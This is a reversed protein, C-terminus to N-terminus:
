NDDHVYFLYLEPGYYHHCALYDSSHYASSWKFNANPMGIVFSNMEELYREYINETSKDDTDNLSYYIIQNTLEGNDDIYSDNLMLFEYTKSNDYRTYTIGWLYTYYANFTTDLCKYLVINYTYYSRDDNFYNEDESFDMYNGTEYLKDLNDNLKNIIETESYGPDDDTRESLNIVTYDSEWVRCIIEMCEDYSLSESLRQSVAYSSSSGDTNANSLTSAALYNILKYPLTAAASIVAVCVIIILILKIKESTKIKNM